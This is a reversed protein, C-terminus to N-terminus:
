KKLPYRAQAEADLAAAAEPDIARLLELELELDRSARHQTQTMGTTNSNAANTLSDNIARTSNNGTSPAYVVATPQSSADARMVRLLSGGSRLVMGEILYKTFSHALTGGGNEKWETELVFRNPVERWSYGRAELAAKVPPWIEYLPKAYVHEAARDRLFNERRQAASCGTLMVMALVVTWGCRELRPM